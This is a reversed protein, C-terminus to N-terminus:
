KSVEEEEPLEDGTVLPIEESSLTIEEQVETNTEQPVEDINLEKVEILEKAEIPEKVEVSQNETEKIESENSSLNSEAKELDANKEKKTM